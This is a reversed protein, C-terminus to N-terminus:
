PRSRLSVLLAGGASTSRCEAVGLARGAPGKLWASLVPGLVPKQGPSNWGRGTIVLLPSLRRARCFTLEEELRARAREIGLGHLDIERAPEPEGGRKM